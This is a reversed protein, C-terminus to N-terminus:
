RLGNFSTGTFCEEVCFVGAKGICLLGGARQVSPTVRWDMDVDGWLSACTFRSITESKTEHLMLLEPEEAQIM